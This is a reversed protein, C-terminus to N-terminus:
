NEVVRVCIGSSGAKNWLIFQGNQASKAFVAIPLNDVVANLFEKAQGIQEEAAKRRTIDTASVLAAREGHWPIMRSMVLLWNINGDRNVIRVTYEYPTDDGAM